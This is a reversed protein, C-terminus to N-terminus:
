SVQFKHFKEYSSLLLIRVQQCLSPSEPVAVLPADSRVLLKRSAGIHLLQTGFLPPSMLLTSTPLHLVHATCFLVVFVPWDLVNIQERASVGLSTNHSNFIWSRAGFRLELVVM